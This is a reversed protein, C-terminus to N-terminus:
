PNANRACRFGLDNGRVASANPDLSLRHYTLIEDLSSAWSGGRVVRAGNADPDERGDLSNYPYPLSLSSVWESVNGAMNLVGYVSRGAIYKDADLTDGMCLGGADHYNAFLCGVEDGWPYLLAAPGRAAKEWEAETPLRGGRWKCYTQAMRWDVNMVPYDAFEFVDYYKLRTQSGTLEPPQCEGANVCVKYLANTVEYQDIYYSILYIARAPSVDDGGDDKGMIFSGEPVFMMPINGADMIQTPPAVSTLTITPTILAQEAVATQTLPEGTRFVATQIRAEYASSVLATATAARETSISIINQTAREALSGVSEATRTAFVANENGTQFLVAMIFLMVLAIMGLVLIPSFQLAFGSEEVESETETAFPNIKWEHRPSLEIGLRDARMRLANMLLEYGRKEYLNIPQWRGLRSPVKCEELRVPLVHLTGHRKELAADLVSIWEASQISVLENFEDSLCFLVIDVKRVVRQLETSEDHNKSEEDHERVISDLDDDPLIVDVENNVLCECLAQVIEQDSRIHYIFVKLRHKSNPM